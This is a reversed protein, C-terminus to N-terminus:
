SVCARYICLVKLISPSQKCHTTMCTTPHHDNLVSTPIASRSAVLDTYQPLLSPLLAKWKTATAKHKAYHSQYKRPSKTPSPLAIHDDFELTATQMPSSLQDSRELASPQTPSLPAGQDCMPRDVNPYLGQYLTTGNAVLTGVYKVQKQKQPNIPLVKIENSTLWSRKQSVNAPAEGRLGLM